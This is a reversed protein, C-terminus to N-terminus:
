SVAPLSSMATLRKSSSIPYLAPGRRTGVQALADSLTRSLRSAHNAPEKRWSM